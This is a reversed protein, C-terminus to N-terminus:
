ESDAMSLKQLVLTGAPGMLQEEYESVEAFQFTQDTGSIEVTDGVAVETDDDGLYYFLNIFTEMLKAADDGADMFYALDPLGFIHHGKTVFWYRQKDKFFKVYGVWLFFPIEERYSCIKGPALFDSKPHATWAPPNVLGLLNENELAHALGYLAIMRMVPDSVGELYTLTLHSQHYRLAAKIQPQWHSVLVTRDIIAQPLPSSSGSYHLHHGGFHIDGFFSHGTREEAESMLRLDAWTRDVESLRQSIAQQGPITIDDSFLLSVTPSFSNFLQTQNDMCEIM